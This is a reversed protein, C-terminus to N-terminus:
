EGPAHRPGMPHLANIWIDRGESKVSPPAARGVLGRIRAIIRGLYWMLNAAWPGTAGYAQRFFRTRSAYFYTPLRKREKELTKVPGSGGRYHIAIAQTDQVIGWGARRARLCYEADEFYLFYGEDMPGIDDIMRANLLICAFSAWEVRSTEVPPELAVVYRRFLHTVPRSSAARILESQPSHFRFCSVQIDGNDTEIQPAVLGAEPHAQATQLISSLFGPKLVADSNLLLYHDAKVAAIALNHGGSFGTNTESRIMTVPTNAPQADIWAAIEEASGDGSANDVIVVQVAQSGIDALVSQLCNLTLTKTKYNIISVVIQPTM